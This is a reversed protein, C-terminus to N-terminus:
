AAQTAPRGAERAVLDRYPGSGQVLIDPPGDEVIRGGQRDALDRGAAPPQLPRVPEIDDQDIIKLQQAAGAFAVVAHLLQGFDGCAELRQRFPKPM